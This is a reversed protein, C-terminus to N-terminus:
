RGLPREVIHSGNEDHITLDASKRLVSGDPQMYYTPMGHFMGGPKFLEQWMKDSAVKGEPTDFMVRMIEENIAWYVPDGKSYKCRYTASNDFGFVSAVTMFDRKDTFTNNEIERREATNVVLLECLGDFDLAEDLEAGIDILARGLKQQLDEIPRLRSKWWDIADQQVNARWTNFRSQELLKSKARGLMRIHARHESILRDLTVACKRLAVYRVLPSRSLDEAIKAFPLTSEISM